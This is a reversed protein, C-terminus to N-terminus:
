QEITQRIYYKAMMYKKHIKRDRLYRKWFDVFSITTKKNRNWVTRADFYKEKDASFM